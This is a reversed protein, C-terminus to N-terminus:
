SHIRLSAKSVMVTMLMELEFEAVNLGDDGDDEPLEVM